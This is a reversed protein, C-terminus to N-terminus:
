SRPMISEFLAILQPVYYKKYASENPHCGDPTGSSNSTLFTTNQIDNYANLGSEAYADYVPIAYKHCIALMKERAQAFTYGASNAVYVTSKIKHVIVFCIPKGVWKTIAQRFISELAGCVTTTDLTGSYDSESYDGLPVDRWYDNIGGELCILDADDPMNAVTNVVSHPMTGSPVASALIGGSVANNAYTGNTLDAIIKAYAGGNNASTTQLRSEAISDGNYAIKKGSLFGSGTIGAVETIQRNNLGFSEDLINKGYAYYTAPYTGEVFMTSDIRSLYDTFRAYAPVGITSYADKNNAVTVTVIDDVLTGTSYGIYTKNADFLALRPAATAGYLAAAVRYSYTNGRRIPIYDSVFCTSSDALSGNNPVIYKSTTITSKDFLNKNIIIKKEIDSAKYLHSVGYAYFQGHTETNTLGTFRAYVATEPVNVIDDQYGVNLQGGRGKYGTVYAMNADYFAMGITYSYVNTTTLIMRYKIAQYQSVNIYDTYFVDTATQATVTGDTAKIYGNAKKPTTLQTWEDLQLASNIEDIEDSLQDQESKVRTLIQTLRADNLTKPM